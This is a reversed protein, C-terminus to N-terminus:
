SLCVTGIGPALLRVDSRIRELASLMNEAHQYIGNKNRGHVVKSEYGYTLIRINGVKTPLLDRPWFVSRSEEVNTQEGGKRRKTFGAWVTTIKRSNDPHPPLEKTWTREPHGRLGHVFVVCDICSGDRIIEKMNPVLDNSRWRM